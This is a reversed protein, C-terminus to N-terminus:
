EGRKSIRIVVENDSQKCIVYDAENQRPILRSELRAIKTRMVTFNHKLKAVDKALAELTRTTDLTQKRASTVSADSEYCTDCVDAERSDARTESSSSM